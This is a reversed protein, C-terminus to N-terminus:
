ITLATENKSLASFEHIGTDQAYREPFWYEKGWQESLRVRSLPGITAHVQDLFDIRHPTAQYRHVKREHHDFLSVIRRWNGITSSPAGTQQQQASTHHVCCPIKTGLFFM